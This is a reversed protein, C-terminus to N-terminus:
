SIIYLYRSSIATASAPTASNASAGSKPDPPYGHPNLDRRGCWKYRLCQLKNCHKKTYLFGARYYINHDQHFELSCCKNKQASFFM